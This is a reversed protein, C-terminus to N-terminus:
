EFEIPEDTGNYWSYSVLRCTNPNVNFKEALMNAADMLEKISHNSRGKEDGYDNFYRLIYDVGWRDDKSDRKYSMEQVPVFDNNTKM